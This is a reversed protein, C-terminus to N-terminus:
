IKKLFFLSTKRMADELPVPPTWDLHTIAKGIDVQLSSCIKNIYDKKGIATFLFNLVCVPIPIIISKSRLNSKLLKVLESTSIDHNDSIQFINGAANRHHVCVEVFSVLNEIYIMSRKNKIAGLPIPLDKKLIDILSKFNAKVGPGYVLPPRIIVIQMDSKEGLETLANEANVKSRAYPDQPPSTDCERLPNDPLSTEGNVKISSIFIFRKVGVSASQEALRITALYNIENFLKEPDIETEKTIHARAAVHVVTDITQLAPLFDTNSSFECIIKQQVEVPLENDNTRVTATVPYGIECLRKTLARGVFGTAGTILIAKKNEQNM